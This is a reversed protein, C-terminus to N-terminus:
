NMLGIFFNYASHTGVAIGLGRYYFILAFCGGALFRFGFIQWQWAEGYPGLHHAGAFIGASLVVALIMASREASVLKLLWLMLGFGLLRFLVEEFVGSGMLAIAKMSRTAIPIGLQNWQATLIMGLGWLALAFLLSELFMGFLTGLSEPPSRDWRIVAWGLCILALFVSPLYEATWGMQQCYSGLWADLGSRLATVGQQAEYWMAMEYGLLLTLM